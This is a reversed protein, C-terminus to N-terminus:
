LAVSVVGLKLIRNTKLYETRRRSAEKKLSIRDLAVHLGESGSETKM